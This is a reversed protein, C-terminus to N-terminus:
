IKAVGMLMGKNWERLQGETMLTKRTCFMNTMEVRWLPFRPLDEREIPDLPRIEIEESM